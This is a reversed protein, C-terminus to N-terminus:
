LSGSSQSEGDLWFYKRKSALKAFKLKYVSTILFITYLFFNCRLIVSVNRRVYIIKMFEEFLFWLGSTQHTALGIYNETIDGLAHEGNTLFIMLANILVFINQILM